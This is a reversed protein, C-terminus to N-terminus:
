HAHAVIAEGLAKIGRTLEHDPAHSYALRLYGQGAEQGLFKEGPRCFVGNLAAEHQAKEWDVNDAIKLWLYYGGDPVEFEVLGGCHERVAAAALDRKRRYVSNALEIHPDLLGEQLYQTLMRCIWQSVGLDQRVSALAHILREPATIWGIRLAPALIKSFGHSQMVRGSTDMSLLSPVPDGSYRLDAYISDELIVFDYEEAVELLRRRREEPMVVCTPLQFTPIVYLLKPTVGDRRMEELREVLSEIVLGHEDIEVTRLDAGRMEMFRMAYPFTAKEVLVGDGPNVLANVALAIAQVSGSTLILNDAGIGNVHQTKTLWKAIEERLGTNGLMLEIYTPLYIIQDSEEEYGFSIYELARGGDRDLVAGMLRKFDDIPFTEEAAIGQDFNFTVQAPADPFFLAPGNAALDSLKNSPDFTM